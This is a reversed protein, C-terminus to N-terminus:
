RFERAGKMYGLICNKGDGGERSERKGEDGEEVGGRGGKRDRRKGRGLREGDEM